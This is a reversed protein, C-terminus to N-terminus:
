GAKRGPGERYARILERREDETFSTLSWLEAEKPDTYTEADEEELTIGLVSEIAGQNREPLHRGREWASVTARDVGLKSALQQQTLKLAQRRLRIRRGITQAAMVAIM